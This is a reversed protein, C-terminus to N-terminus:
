RCVACSWTFGLCLCQRELYWLYLTFYPLTCRQVPVSTRYLGYPVSPFCLYLYLYFAGNCLFQPETCATRCMPSTSTYTLYLAGKYLCKPETCATRCMPSISTYTCTFNVTTCASLCLPPNSTLNFTFHVRTCANLSQVPRVACLPLLPIPLLLTCRQLPVTAWYLEYPLEPISSYTFTFHVTTNLSQVSRVAWLPLLPIASSKRSWPVLLPHPTLM